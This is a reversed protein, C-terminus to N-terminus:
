GGRRRSRHSSRDARTGRADKPTRAKKGPIRREPKARERQRVAPTGATIGALRYLENMESAALARSRGRALTRDMTLPGLGTRILRSLEVGSAACLRHVDRARGGRIVLRLWRNYGEGGAPEVKQVDIREGEGLDGSQLREMQEPQPEGRVRVAFEVPLEALRRMLGQALDGDSTLLELGGDNPPLPSVSVWRRGARKPLQLQTDMATADDGARRPARHLIVVRTDSDAERLRLPRDDLTVRDQPGIHAGPQARQGNIALRGEKIWAEVQRRSGIGARALVKQIRESL